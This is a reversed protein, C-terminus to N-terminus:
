FLFSDEGLDTYDGQLYFEFDDQDSRVYTRDTKESHTFRLEGAETKGGDDDLGTFGLNSLDILDIGRQFDSIEDYAKHQTSDTRNNFVFIDAGDGGILYDKGAGGDLRDNGSGGELKDTDEGGYLKDDSSQGYLNDRGAGGILMDDGYRGYLFDRDDGGDIINDNKNGKLNDRQDSGILNDIGEYTQEAGEGTNKSDNLLDVNVRGIADAFSFVDALPVEPTVVPVIEEEIVVETEEIVDVVMEEVIDENEEPIIATEEDIVAIVVEEEVPEETEEAAVVVEEAPEETEAVEEIVAVVEEAETTEDLVIAVTEEAPAEDSPLIIGALGEGETHSVDLGYFSVQGAGAGNETNNALYLGAKYYFEDTLWFEDIPTVSSYVEGDAYAEVILTDGGTVQIKYSFTEGLEIAPTEGADNLLDFRHEKGDEGSHENVYYLDGEDYYLRVLEDNEGHIQGVIVGGWKDKYSVPIEDIKLTASLTGGEEVTWWAALGDENGERLETRTYKTNSSTRAGDVTSYFVMAGDDADYFFTEHEFDTLDKITLAKGSTGGNADVPLTARWLSLDFNDSNYTM